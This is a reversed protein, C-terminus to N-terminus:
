PRGVGLPIYKLGSPFPYKEFLRWCDILTRPRSNHNFHDATLEKFEAWPTTVVLVDAKRICEIPSGCFSVTRKLVKRANEMGFPDYAVVRISDSALAQALLLGQAEEVHNSDPKYTLGLIGVTGGQALHSKTIAALWQVQSRNFSDTAEALTAPADLQRALSILAVNDRPFCPGGYGIAGKLYKPGIRSDLGLAATVTDVEAGPLRECIRAIMNAFSIKTTVFTNVALKTLEANVINMRAIPPDNLCVHKYLSALAQGSRTDSEGILVFDPALFDRMVSGLAVFEPNYCLGFEKGCTKGSHSELLPKLQGETAGPMVTSTLVVLHFGTKKSLIEGVREAAELVYYMSFGGTKESPTPVVLFTVDSGLIAEEYDEGATFRGDGKHILEELEPEFVPARCENIARVKASDTDLGATPFGQWAFCAGMPAGLRGLGVISIRKLELRM